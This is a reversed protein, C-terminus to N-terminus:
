IDNGGLFEAKKRRETTERFARNFLWVGGSALRLAGGLQM